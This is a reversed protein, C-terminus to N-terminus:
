AQTYNKPAKQLNQSRKLRANVRINHMKSEGDTKEPDISVGDKSVIHGLVAVKNLWFECKSFKTYLENRRLVELVIRMHHTHEEPTGSYILINDISLVVFQDLYPKFDRNMLDM